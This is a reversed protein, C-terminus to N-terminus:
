ESRAFDGCLTRAAEVFAAHALLASDHYGLHHKKGEVQIQAKWKGIPAWFSVGKLGCKNTSRAKCNSRNPSQSAIRLNCWRNDDRIMNIHDIEANPMSGTMFLWAVRHAKYSRGDVSLTWYGLRERHGAIQGFQCNKFCRRAPGNKWRFIGTTLDYDFLSRVLEVDLAFDKARIM